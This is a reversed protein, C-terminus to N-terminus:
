LLLLVVYVGQKGTPGVSGATLGTAAATPEKEDRGARVPTCRHPSSPPLTHGHADWGLEAADRRSCSDIARLGCSGERESARGLGRGGAGPPGRAWGLQNPPWQGICTPCRVISWADTRGAREIFAERWRATTRSGRAKDLTCTCNRSPHHSRPGAASWKLHPISRTELQPSSAAHPRDM